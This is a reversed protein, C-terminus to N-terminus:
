VLGRVESRRGGGWTVANRPTDKSTWWPWRNPMAQQAREVLRSGARDAEGTALDGAPLFAVEAEEAGLQLDDELVRHSRQVRPHPDAVDDALGEDRLAQGAPPLSEALEQGSDAQGGVGGVPEGVLEGAALPLPDGDGPRERRV